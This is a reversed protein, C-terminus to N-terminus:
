QCSYNFSYTGGSKYLNLKYSGSAVEATVTTDVPNAQNLMEKVLKGSDDTLQIMVSGDGSSNITVTISSNINVDFTDALEMGATSSATGTPVSTAAAETGTGMDKSKLEYEINKDLYVYTFSRSLTKTGDKYNYEGAATIEGSKKSFNVVSSDFVTVVGSGYYSKLDQNILATVAEKDYDTIENPTLSTTSITATPAKDDATETSVADAESSDSMVMGTCGSLVAACLLGAIIKYRQKIM